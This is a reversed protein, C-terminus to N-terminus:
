YGEKFSEIEAIVNLVRSKAPTRLSNPIATRVASTRFSRLRHRSALYNDCVPTGSASIPEDGSQDTQGIASVAWGWRM